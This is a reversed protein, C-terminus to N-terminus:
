SDAVATQGVRDHAWESVVLSILSKRPRTAGDSQNRSGWRRQGIGLSGKAPTNFIPQTPFVRLKEALIKSSDQFRYLTRGRNSYFTLVFDHTGSGEQINRHGQTVKFPPVRHAWYEQRIRMRVSTGDSRSRGSETHNYGLPSLPM